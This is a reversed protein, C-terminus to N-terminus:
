SFMMSTPSTRIVGFFIYAQLRYEFPVFDGLYQSLSLPEFGRAELHSMMFSKGLYSLFLTIVQGIDTILVKRSM